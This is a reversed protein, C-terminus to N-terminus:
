RLDFNLKSNAPICVAMIKAANMVLKRELLPKIEGLMDAWVPSDARSHIRVLRPNKSWKRKLSAIQDDNLTLCLTLGSKVPM